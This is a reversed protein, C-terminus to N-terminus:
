AGSLTLMLHRLCDTISQMPAGASYASCYEFDDGPTPGTSEVRTVVAPRGSISTAVRSCLLAFEYVSASFAGVPNRVSFGSSHQALWTGIAYAIDITGVFNRRQEGSSRIVIEGKLIADRPFSFPILSWRRFESPSDLQGFVACPRLVLVGIGATAARRFVQETVFHAIAYDSVPDVPRTEDSRGIMPGYVHASSVYVLRQAGAKTALRVLADAGAWAMRVARDPADRFDEDVVGACHVLADIPPLEVLSLASVDSLDCQIDASARRGLRVVECSSSLQQEVQRGILGTSGTM